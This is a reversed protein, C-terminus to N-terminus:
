SPGSNAKARSAVTTPLRFTATNPYTDRRQTYDHTEPDYHHPPRHRWLLKRTPSTNIAVSHRHSVHVPHKSRHREHTPRIHRYCSRSLPLAPSSATSTTSVPVPLHYSSSIISSSSYFIKSIPLLATRCLVACHCPPTPTPLSRLLSLEISRFLM